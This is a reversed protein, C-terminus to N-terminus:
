EMRLNIFPLMFNSFTFLFIGSAVSFLLLPRTLKYFSIGASKMATVEFHESMSGIAMISALLIALPFARPITNLSFYFFLELLTTAGLNKGVFEDIYVFIFIMLFIFVSIFFTVLFSSIYHLFIFRYLKKM